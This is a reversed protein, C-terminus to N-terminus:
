RGNSFKSKHCDSYAHFSDPGLVTGHESNDHRIIAARAVALEDLFDAGVLRQLFPVIEGQVVFPGLIPNALARLRRVRHGAEDPFEGLSSPSNRRSRDGRRRRGDSLVRRAICPKRSNTTLPKTSRGSATLTAATSRSPRVM